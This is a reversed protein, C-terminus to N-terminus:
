HCYIPLVSFLSAHITNQTAILISSSRMKLQMESKCKTAQSTCPSASSSRSHHPPLHHPHNHEHQPPDNKTVKSVKGFYIHAKAPDFSSFTINIPFSSFTNQLQLTYLKVKAFYNKYVFIIGDLGVTQSAVNLVHRKGKSMTM